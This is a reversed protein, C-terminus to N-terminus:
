IAIELLLCTLIELLAYRNRKDQGGVVFRDDSEIGQRLECHLEVAERGFDGLLQRFVAHNPSSKKTTKGNVLFETSLLVALVQQHIGEM